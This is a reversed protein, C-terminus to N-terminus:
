FGITLQFLNNGDFYQSDRFAYDFALDTNGFKYHLGVGLTFTYLQDDSNTNQAFLYGGRLAILDNYNYEAGVKYNDNGFNNNVFNGNLIVSNQENINRKYGVGLEVTAPLQFSATPIDRFNGQVDKQLFASGSYQMDTGINKVALGMSLGSIGGLEHYQIGVDVAFASGNARPVRESVFKGSFGVQIADTLKRSYTVTGTLFTPSFTRGSAGDMDENTTFPIDGFDFTKLSFGITGFRGAQVGIAMYNVNIDNFITMTSFTGAAHSTMSSFGAPNWYIADLGSTYAVNSGGLALDRAGVPVRLQEGGATGTRAGDGAYLSPLGMLFVMMIATAWFFKYKRM